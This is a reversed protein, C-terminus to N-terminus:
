PSGLPCARAQACDTAATLCQLPPGIGSLRANAVAACAMEEADRCEDPLGRVATTCSEPSAQRGPGTLAPAPTPTAVCHCSALSILLAFALAKVM